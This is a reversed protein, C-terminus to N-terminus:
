AAPHAAALDHDPDELLRREPTQGEGILVRAARIDDARDLAIAASLRGDRLLFATAPGAHPDGRWVVEDTSEPVGTVQLNADYQESWVWPVEAFTTETGAITKAVAQAQHQANQWHEIRMRAGGVRANPFNAADGIVFIDPVASRCFEDVVVGDTVPLGADAALGVDAVSGVAVLVADAQHTGGLADLVTVGDAHETVSRVPCGLRLDVGNSRHLAEYVAGVEAPLLRALPSPAAELVTVECALARASAAVEAGVFGAGIVLLRRGAGLTQAIQLADDITRLYLVRESPAAGPLARPYSGPALVLADYPLREGDALAVTHAGVDIATAPQGIRMAIDQNVWTREPRLHAREPGREGRLVAKSLPPKSYPPHPEGCVVTISGEYGASRLSLATTGGGVGGGVIVVRDPTM